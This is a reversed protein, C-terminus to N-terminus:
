NKQALNCSHAGHNRGGCGSCQHIHKPNSSSCRGPRQWDLCITEGDPNVIQGSSNRRCNAPQGDWRTSSRCKGIEDSGHWGLCIACIAR